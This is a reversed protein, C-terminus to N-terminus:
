KEITFEWEYIKDQAARADNANPELILYKKMSNIASYYKGAHAYILAMNYYGAAYSYANLELAKDYLELAVIYDMKANAANAQVIYKRQEESMENTYSGSTAETKFKTLDTKSQDNCVAKQLNILLGYMKQVIEKDERILMKKNGNRVSNNYYYISFMNTKIKPIFSSNTDIDKILKLSDCLKVIMKEKEGYWMSKGNNDWNVKKVDLIIYSQDLTYGNIEYHNGNGAEISWQTFTYGPTSNPNRKGIEKSLFHEANERLIKLSDTQANTLLPTFLYISFLLATIKKM